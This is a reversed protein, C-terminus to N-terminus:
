LDETRRLALGAGIAAISKIDNMYEPPCIKEDCEITQFPDFRETECRLRQALAEEIGPIRTCGGSILIKKIFALSVSSSFYDISREVEAFIPEVYSLMDEGAIPERGLQEIKLTEAEEFSLGTHRQIAETISDGGMLINRTFVSQNGKVININTISAGMNILGVLDDDSYEYNEEYATELAFSDADMIVVRCGAAEIASRYEAVIDKRAAAIIVEIQERNDPNEGLINIDFAVNDIDDFPLYEGAEDIIVQRLEDEEMNRFGAKNIVISHGSLATAVQSAKCKSIKFLEKIKKTLASSDNLFGKEIVGRELSVQAFSKLKYGTPTDVIEVLKLIRSGVDVGVINKGGSFLGSMLKM